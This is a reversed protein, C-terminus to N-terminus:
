RRHLVTQPASVFMWGALHNAYWRWRRSVPGNSTFLVLDTSLSDICGTCDQRFVVGRRKLLGLFLIKEGPM